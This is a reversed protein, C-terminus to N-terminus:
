EWQFTGRTGHLRCSPQNLLTCASNMCEGLVYFGPTHISISHNKMTRLKFGSSWCALYDRVFTLKSIRQCKEYGKITITKVRQPVCRTQGRGAYNSDLIYDENGQCLIGIVEGNDVRCIPSGSDGAFADVKCEFYTPHMNYMMSAGDTFKVPLGNSYGLM